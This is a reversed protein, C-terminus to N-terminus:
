LLSEVFTIVVGLALGGFVGCIMLVVVFGLDELEDSM